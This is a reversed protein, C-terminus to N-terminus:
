QDMHAMHTWMPGNSIWMFFVHKSTCAPGGAQACRNPYEVDCTLTCSGVFLLVPIGYPGIHNWIPGYPTMHAWKPEYPGMHVWIPGYPNMHVWICGYPVWILAAWFAVGAVECAVPM